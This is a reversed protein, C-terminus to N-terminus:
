KKVEGRSQGIITHVLKVDKKKPTTNMASECVVTSCFGVTVTGGAPAIGPAANGPATGALPLL